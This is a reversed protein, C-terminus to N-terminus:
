KYKLMIDCIEIHFAIYEGFHDLAEKYIPSDKFEKFGIKGNTVSKKRINMIKSVPIDIFTDNPSDPKKLEEIAWHLQPLNMKKMYKIDADQYKYMHELVYIECKNLMDNTKGFLEWKRTPVSIKKFRDFLGEEAIMMQDCYDMFM